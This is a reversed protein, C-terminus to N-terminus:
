RRKAADWLRDLEAATTGAVRRGDAALATEIYAFRDEFKRSAVRLAGEADLNLHRALNVCSFLLDGLENTLTAEDADAAHEAALEDLEERVKDFVPAITGWDFGVRAARGQLKQARVLAPLAAPIGALESAGAPREGREEAKLIEWRRAQEAADGTPENGFVHPHRRELKAALAAAVEDFGFLGQEAAIQCYFVVQFLLDGLEAPLEELAGREITDAVEHAEELTHKVLSGFTQARDWPCGGTPARLRRMIDLLQDISTNM